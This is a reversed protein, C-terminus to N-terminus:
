YTYTLRNTWSKTFTSVGDAWTGKLNSQVYRKIRWVNSSESSGPVAEGVYMYLVDTTDDFRSDYLVTGGISGLSSIIADQKEETAPNITLGLANLIQVFVPIKM